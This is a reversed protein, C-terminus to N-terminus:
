LQAELGPNSQPKLARGYRDMVRALVRINASSPLIASIFFCMDIGASGQSLADTPDICFRLGLGCTWGTPM